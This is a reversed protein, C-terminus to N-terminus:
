LEENHEGKLDILRAQLAHIKGTQKVMIKQGSTFIVPSVLSKGQKIIYARDVEALKDGQKIRDGAKVLPIFGKGQLAVTDMGIHILVELGNESKIGYAHGTPYTMVVEGDFPAYVANGELAIAFGDGMLRQSFVQDEVEELPMMIGEMPSLFFASGKPKLRLKGVIFTLIFSIGVAMLLALLYSPIFQPLISFIGPLGGVGISAAMIQQHVAYLAACSSGIVACVFPFGYKKNVGFLAPETVGFMCSVCAPVNVAQRSKDKRQLCIMGLVASGQAVNALAILPWLMTGGFSSIYQLDLLTTIHHMGTMVLFMYGGGFLIATLYSLPSTFLFYLLDALGGGILSGLPALIFQTLLVASVLSGFPVSLMSISEPSLKRFFRELYVLAFGALIAPIVESPYGQISDMQLTPSLLSPSVMTIGLVIGLIESGKMKKMISWVIAIPMFYFVANGILGLLQGLRHFFPSIQALSHTGQDFFRIDRIINELGIVLGGCIIAPIIPAFIAGLNAMIKKLPPVKEQSTLSVSVNPQYLQMFDQYFLSVDNGIIIQFQGSQKVIGKVVNIAEIAEQDIRSSDNLEFRLRTVCHSVTKINKSEGIAKFLLQAEKKYKGM